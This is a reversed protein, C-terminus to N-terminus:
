VHRLEDAVRAMDAPMDAEFRMPEGTSPHVFALMRAHLAQRGLADVAARAPEPLARAKSRFGAGYVHDGILPHGVHAMHVRIQHTRGTELMCAVLSAAPKAAPGFRTEVSFRTVAHRADPQSESVVAQKTRDSGSRGLHTAITGTNRDPGGWVLAQYVREMPGTRGHDAFQASLHKHAADTKAIVMVGSTDKDLRHVIGPRRVGGIGSLTDGCHHILANVLTGTANGAGPHVVLGAPKDIVILADDEYLVSLAIAEAQPEADAPPPLDVRAIDGAAVRRKAEVVVAGNVTVRGDEILGKLRSRSVTGDMATALFQDLRRGADDPGATVDEM